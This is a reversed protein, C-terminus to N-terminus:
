VAFMSFKHHAFDFGRRWFFQHGSEQGTMRFRERKKADKPPDKETAASGSQTM